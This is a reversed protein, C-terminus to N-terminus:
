DTLPFIGLPLYLPGSPKLISQYLIVEKVPVAQIVTDRYKELAKVLSDQKRLYRIRGITLHPSFPKDDTSFGAEALGGQIDKKLEGLRDTQEVGLWLVRPERISRFVGSGKLTFSFDGFGSCKEKLMESLVTIKNEETDGLFELTLHINSLETWKVSEDCLLHKFSSFVELLKQEPIIRVAIFIRKM